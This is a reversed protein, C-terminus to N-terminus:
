HVFFTRYCAIQGSCRWGEWYIFAFNEKAKSEAKVHVHIYLTYMDRAFQAVLFFCTFLVENIDRTTSPRDDTQLFFFHTSLFRQYSQPGDRQRLERISDSTSSSSSRYRRTWYVDVAECFYIDYVYHARSYVHALTTANLKEFYFFLLTAFLYVRWLWRWLDDTTPITVIISSM